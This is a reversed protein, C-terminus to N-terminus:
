FVTKRTGRLIEGEFIKKIDSMPPVDFVNAIQVDNVGEISEFECNGSDPSRVNNM